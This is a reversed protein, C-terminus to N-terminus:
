LNKIWKLYKENVNKTEIEIIEPTEYTHHETIFEEVEKFSKSTKIIMLVENTEEIKGKWLYSSEVPTLNYCAILKEKLLEKGIKHAEEKNSFTSLILIM